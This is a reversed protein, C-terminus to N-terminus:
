LCWYSPRRVQGQPRWCGEMDPSYILPCFGSLCPAICCIPYDHEHYASIPSALVEADAPVVLRNVRVLMVEPIAGSVDIRSCYLLFLSPAPSTTTTDVHFAFAKLDDIMTLQLQGNLRNGARHFQEELIAADASHTICRSNDKGV